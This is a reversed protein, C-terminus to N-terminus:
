DFASIPLYPAHKFGNTMMHLLNLPDAVPPELQIHMGALEATEGQLFHRSQLGRGSLNDDFVLGHFQALRAGLYPNRISHAFGGRKLAHGVQADRRVMVINLDHREFADESAEAFGVFPEHRDDHGIARSARAAARVRSVGILLHLGHAPNFLLFGGEDPLIRGRNKQVM